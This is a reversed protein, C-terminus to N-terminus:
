RSFGNSLVLWKDCHQLVAGGFILRLGLKEAFALAAGGM